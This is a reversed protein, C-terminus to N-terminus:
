IVAPYLITAVSYKKYAFRGAAASIYKSFAKRQAIDLKTIHHAHLTFCLTLTDDLVAIQLLLM